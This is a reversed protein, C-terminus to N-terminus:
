LEGAMANSVSNDITTLPFYRKFPATSRNGDADVTPIYITHESGGLSYTNFKICLLDDNLELLIGGKYNAAEVPIFPTFNLFSMENADNKQVGDDEGDFVESYIEDLNVKLVDCIPLDALSKFAPLFDKMKFIATVSNNSTDVAKIPVVRSNVFHGYKFTNEVVWGTDSFTVQVHFHSDRKLYRDNKGILWSDLFEYYVRKIENRDIHAYWTPIFVYEDDIVLQDQPQELTNYFPWFSVNLFDNPKTRHRLHVVHSASNLHPYQPIPLHPHEANYLNFEFNRLLNKEVLDRESFPMYVDATCDALMLGFFPKVISIVGSLANIPSLIFENTEYRYMVRRHSIYTKKRKGVEQINTKDILQDALDASSQPLCQTQILEFLPRVSKVAVEFRKIITNVLLEEILTEDYYTEIHTVGDKSHQALILSFNKTIKDKAGEKIDDKLKAKQYATVKLEDNEFKDRLDHVLQLLVKRRLEKNEIANVSLDAVKNIATVEGTENSVTETVDNDVVAITEDLEYTEIVDPNYGALKKVGGSQEIFNALKAVRYRKYSNPHNKYQEHLKNLVRSYVDQNYISVRGIGFVLLVLPRLNIGYVVSKRYILGMDTYESELYGEEISAKCWWFYVDVLYIYLKDNAGRLDALVVAGDRQLDRLENKIKAKRVSM